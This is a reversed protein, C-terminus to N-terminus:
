GRPSSAWATQLNRAALMYRIKRHRLDQGDEVALEEAERAAEVGVRERLRQEQRLRVGDEVSGAVGDDRQGLDLAGCTLPRPQQRLEVAALVVLGFRRGLRELLRGRAVPGRALLAVAAKIAKACTAAADLQEVLKDTIPM